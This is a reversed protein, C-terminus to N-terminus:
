ITYGRKKMEQRVRETAERSVRGSWSQINRLGVDLLQQRQQVLKKGTASRYFTLMDIIESESFMSAYTRALIDDIEDRRKEFEPVLNVAAERLERILDPNGQVFSGAAQELINPILNEFSKSEGNAQLLDRALKLHGASPEKSAAAAPPQQAHAPSPAMAGGVVASLALSVALVGHAIGAAGRGAPRRKFSARM